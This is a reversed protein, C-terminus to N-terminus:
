EQHVYKEPREGDCKLLGDDIGVSEVQGIKEKQDCDKGARRESEVRERGGM